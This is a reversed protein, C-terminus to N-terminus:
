ATSHGTKERTDRLWRLRVGGVLQPRAAAPLHQGPDLGTGARVPSAAHATLEVPVPRAARLGRTVLPRARCIRQPPFEPTVRIEQLM